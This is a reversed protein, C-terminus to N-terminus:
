YVIAYSFACKFLIFLPAFSFLDRLVKTVSMFIWLNWKAWPFPLFALCIVFYCYCIKWKIARLFKEITEITEIKEKPTNVARPRQFYCDIRSLWSRGVRLYFENFHFKQLSLLYYYVLCCLLIFSLWPHNVLWKRQSATGSSRKEGNNIFATTHDRDFNEVRRQHHEWPVLICFGTDLFGDWGVM